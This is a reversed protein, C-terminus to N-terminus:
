SAMVDQLTSRWLADIAREERVKQPQQIQTDKIPQIRSLIAETSMKRGGKKAQKGTEVELGTFSM